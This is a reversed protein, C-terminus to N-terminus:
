TAAGAGASPAGTSAGARAPRMYIAGKPGPKPIIAGSALPRGQTLDEVEVVVDEGEVFVGSISPRRRRDDPDGGPCAVGRGDIAVALASDGVDPSGGMWFFRPDTPPGVEVALCNCHAEHPGKSLMLDHRVGLWATQRDEKPDLPQPGFLAETDRLHKDKTAPEPTWDVDAASKSPGCSASALALVLLALRRM